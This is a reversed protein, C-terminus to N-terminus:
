MIVKYIQKSKTIIQYQARTNNKRKLYSSIEDINKVKIGDVSLIVGGELEKAYDIYNENTITKIKVGYTINLEKKDTEDIEELEIGNFEYAM